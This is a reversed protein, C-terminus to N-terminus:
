SSITVLGGVITVTWIMMFHRTANEVLPPPLVSQFSCDEEPLKTTQKILVVQGSYNIDLGTRYSICSYNLPLITRQWRETIPEVGM